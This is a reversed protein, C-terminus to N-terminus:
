RLATGQNYTKDLLIPTTRNKGQLAPVSGIMGNILLGIIGAPFLRPLM